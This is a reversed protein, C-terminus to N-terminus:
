VKTDMRCKMPVSQLDKFHLCFSVWEVWCGKESFRLWSCHTIIYIFYHVTFLTFPLSTKGLMMLFVGDEAFPFWALLSLLQSIIVQDKILEMASEELDLEYCLRIFLPGFKYDGLNINKNEAHYRAILIIWHTLCHAVLFPCIPWSMCEALHQPCWLYHSLKQRFPFLVSSFIILLIRAHLLM